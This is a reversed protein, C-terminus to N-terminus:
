KQYETLHFWFECWNIQTPSLQNRFETVDDIDVGPDRSVCQTKLVSWIDDEPPYEEGAWVFTHMADLCPAARKLALAVLHADIPSYKNPLFLSTVADPRIVLKRVHRAIEPNKSLMDLTICCGPQQLEVERYIAGIVKGYVLSCKIYM